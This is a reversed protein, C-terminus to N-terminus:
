LILLRRIVDDSSHGDYPVPAEDFEPINFYDWYELDYHYSIQGDPGLIMVIFQGDFMTGDHHKKAKFVKLTGDFELNNVLAATLAMRHKYLEEMSHYGDSVDLSDKDGLFLFSAVQGEKNLAHKVMVSGKIFVTLKSAM